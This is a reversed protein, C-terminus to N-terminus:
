PWLLKVDCVVRYIDTTLKKVNIVSAEINAWCFGYFM